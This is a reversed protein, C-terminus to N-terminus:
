FSTEFDEGLVRRIANDALRLEELFNDINKYIHSYGHSYSHNGIAHGEDFIRKLINPNVDVM